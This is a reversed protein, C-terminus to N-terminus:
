EGEMFTESAQRIRCGYSQQWTPLKAPNLPPQISNARGPLFLRTHYLLFRYLLFFKGEHEYYYDHWEFGRTAEGTSNTNDEVRCYLVVLTYMFLDLISAPEDIEWQNRQLGQREGLAMWEAGKQQILEWVREWTPTKSELYHTERLDPIKLKFAFWAKLTASKRVMSLMSRELSSVSLAAEYSGVRMKELPSKLTARTHYYMSAQPLWADM